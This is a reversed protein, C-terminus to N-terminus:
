DMKEMFLQLLNDFLIYFLINYLLQIGSIILYEDNLTVLAGGYHSERLIPEFRFTVYCFLLYRFFVKRSPISSRLLRCKKRSRRFWCCGLSPEENNFLFSLLVKFFARDATKQRKFTYTRLDGTGHLKWWYRLNKWRIKSKIINMVFIRYRSQRFM